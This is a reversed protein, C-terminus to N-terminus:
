KKRLINLIEKKIGKFDKDDAHAYVIIELKDFQEKFDVKSYHQALTHLLEKPTKCNKIDTFENNAKLIYFRTPMIKASIFGISFIFIYILFDKANTFIDVSQPYNIKDVLESKDLKSVSINYENTQITYYSNSSPSYCKFKKKEIKFNKDSILAYHFERKIQYGSETEKNYFKTVDSFISVDKIKSIPEINIKDFGVGQLLYTANVSEYENIAKKDITTVLEFDGVLDVNKELEKINLKIAKIKVKTDKTQIGQVNNRGGTYIEAVAVDSAEKITFDFDVEIKGHILPFLLFTFTTRKDHYAIDEVTKQLLTIDYKNSKKSELFFFMNNDHQAQHTVFSIKVAEKEYINTKNATLSYTALNSNSFLNMYLLVLICAKGLTSKMQIDKTSLNM